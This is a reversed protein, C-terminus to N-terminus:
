YWLIELTQILLESSREEGVLAFYSLQHLM